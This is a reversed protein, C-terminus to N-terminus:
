RNADYEKIQNLYDSDVGALLKCDQLLEVPVIDASKPLPIPHQGIVEEAELRTIDDQSIGLLQGLVYENDEGLTPAPKRISGPTKSLKFSVGPCPRTGIEAQEFLEFYKNARVHKDLLVESVNLVAAAPVGDEQLLYMVQYHDLRTTWEEIYRDLEDHNQWRAPMDAFRKDTIWAPNGIVRCFIPWEAESRVAIAVWSDNGQCRYVGHPAMWPHRNGMRSQVRGNLTYDLIPGGILTTVTEAESLDIFQGKGTKDRHYLATLLAGAGYVGSGPDSIYSDVERPPGDPYGALNSTGAVAEIATGLGSYYGYPGTQGYASMSLMIIDPKIEKLVDYTLGFNKMVRPSFNEMVVDSIKVLRKILDIGHPSNLNLTLNRKNRHLLNRNSREWPREGSENEAPNFYRLFDIRQCAEVNIVEAGMDALMRSTLPGAWVQSLDVIRIGELPLSPM